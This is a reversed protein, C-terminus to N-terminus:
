LSLEKDAAEQVQEDPNQLEQTQQPVSTEVNPITTVLGTEASVSVSPFLMVGVAMVGIVSVAAAFKRLVRRGKFIATKMM